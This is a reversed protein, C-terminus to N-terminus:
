PRIRRQPQVRSAIFCTRIATPWRDAQLHEAPKSQEDVAEGCALGRLSLPQEREESEM